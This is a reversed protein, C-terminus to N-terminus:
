VSVKITADPKEELQEILLLITWPDAVDIYKKIANSTKEDEVSDVYRWEDWFSSRCGTSKVDQAAKKLTEISTMGGM